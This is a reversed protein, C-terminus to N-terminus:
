HKWVQFTLKLFEIDVSKSLNQIWLKLIFFFDRIRGFYSSGPGGAVTKTRRPVLVFKYFIIISLGEHCREQQFRKAKNFM